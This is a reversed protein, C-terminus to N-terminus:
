IFYRLSEIKDMADILKSELENEDKFEKIVLVSSGEVSYSVPSGLSQVLRSARAYQIGMTVLDDLSEKGTPLPIPFVCKNGGIIYFSYDNMDVVKKDGENKLKYGKEELYKELM